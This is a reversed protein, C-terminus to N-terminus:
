VDEQEKHEPRLKDLNVLLFENEGDPLVVARVRDTRLLGSGGFGVFGALEGRMMMELTDEPLLKWEVRM